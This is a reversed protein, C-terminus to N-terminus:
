EDRPAQVGLWAYFEKTEYSRLEGERIPEGFKAKLYRWNYLAKLLTAEGDCKSCPYRYSVLRNVKVWVSRVGQCKPCSRQNFPLMLQETFHATTEKDLQRLKKEMQAQTPAHELVDTESVLDGNDHRVVYQTHLTNTIVYFVKEVHLVGYPGMFAVYDGVAAVERRSVSM